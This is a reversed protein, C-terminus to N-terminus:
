NHGAGNTTPRLDAASFPKREVIPPLFLEQNQQYLDAATQYDDRRGIDLWHGDYRHTAVTEGRDLLLKVLDPFDFREGAPIYKIARRSFVYIGGSVETTLQPKEEYTVVHGHHDTTLVGYDLPVKQVVTMITAAALRKVHTSIIATFNLDTLIDGNLVLLNDPPEPLTALPGATGLPIDERLYTLRVGCSSGDGFYAEILSALHGVALTIEGLGDRALQRLIIELIPREGLPMLPKPFSTTYPLLRRGKGGALIVVQPTTKPSGEPIRRSKM